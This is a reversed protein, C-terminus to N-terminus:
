KKLIHSVPLDAGCEDCHYKEVRPYYEDVYDKLRNWDKRTKIKLRIKDRLEMFLIDKKTITSIERPM